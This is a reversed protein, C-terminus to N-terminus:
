HAMLIERSIHIAPYTFHGNSWMRNYALLSSIDTEPNRKKKWWPNGEAGERYSIRSSSMVFSNIWTSFSWPASLEKLVNGQSLSLVLICLLYKQVEQIDPVIKTWQLAHHVWQSWLHFLKGPKYSISDPDLPFVGRTKRSNQLLPTRIAEASHLHAHEQGWKTNKCWLMSCQPSMRM